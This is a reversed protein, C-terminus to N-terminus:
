KRCFKLEDTRSNSGHKLYDQLWDCGHNMLDDLDLNFRIITNKTKPVNNESVEEEERAYLFKGDASFSVEVVIDKKSLEIVKLAQGHQNWLRVTGDAGGSALIKGNPSFAVSDVKGVHGKLAPTIEHGQRDWLRVTSDASATAVKNGDPSFSVDRVEDQHGTLAISKDNGLNWLRATSDQSGTAVLDNSPSFRAVNVRGQHEGMRAIERCSALDWVIAVNNTKVDPTNEGTSVLRKSDSSFAIDVLVETHGKLPPCKPSGDVNWVQAANTATQWDNNAGAILKGDPSFAVTQTNASEKLVLKSQTNQDEITISRTGTKWHNVGVRETLPDFGIGDDLRIIKLGATAIDWVRVSNDIGGSILRKGDPSFDLSSVGDSHGHLLSATRDNLDWLRIMSGNTNTVLMKGDPSFQTQMSWMRHMSFKTVAKDETPKLELTLKASNGLTWIKVIEDDGMTALKKSDPSFSIGITGGVVSKADFAKIGPKAVFNIATIQTPKEPKKDNKQDLQWLQVDGGNSAVALYTGNASFRVVANSIKDPDAFKLMKLFQGNKGDWLRVTGDLSASALIETDRSFSLSTVKESHGKLTKVPSGDKANWLRVTFDQGASALLFNAKNPSFRLDAISDEHGELPKGWSSGDQHWLQIKSDDSGSAILTGDPSISVGNVALRHGILQNREKIQYLAQQLTASVSVDADNRLIWSWQKVLQAAKLEEILADFDKNSALLAESRSTITQIQDNVSQRFMYVATAIAIMGMLGVAALMGQLSKRAKKEQKLRDRTLQLERQAQSQKQREAEQKQEEIEEIASRSATVLTPLVEDYGLDIADPSALWGEAEALAVPDLLGGLGHGFRHWEEAKLTLRRRVEEKTRRETIWQQLTPWGAILAEHAIDITRILNKEDGSPTLLRCSVLHSLTKNFLAPDDTAARLAEVSQQRRTDARGEGFQVLRLFIRRAIAQQKELDDTLEKIAQDARRAIAVLLGTKHGPEQGGYAARPLVLAEYARLPLFRRELRQWLLVLTEQILPLIGPEGAADAVLREVLAPEVFVGVNEAPKLIAQRLGTENLPVVELRYKQIEPWLLSTMLDAYFDARVTLILYVNTTKALKLLSEQFPIAEEKALTFLEEFQDILLLVRASEVQAEEGLTKRLTTEPTEGPRMSRIQWEGTGLLRSKKLTPILGAFVLSSKGSGSPGIVTIFPHLRLREILEAIEQDRGFFRDNDELGFPKMGPYPCDPPPAPTPIPRKLDACLQTIASEQETENTAKLGVLMGLRPPLPIAQRILPIVPWTNTDQGYSQGITTIFENLGDALYDPSIVLLTRKSQQIAREFELLRPVGLAFASEYMCQVGAQELAELLYGEVWARDAEAYSVFVDYSPAEPM